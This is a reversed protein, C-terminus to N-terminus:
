LRYGHVNLREGGDDARFHVADLQGTEVIRRERLDLRRQQGVLDEEEPVLFEVDVLVLGETRAETRQMDM